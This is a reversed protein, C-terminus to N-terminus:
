IGFVTQMAQEPQCLLTKAVQMKCIDRNNFAEHYELKIQITEILVAGAYQLSRMLFESDISLIEPFQELYATRMAMLSPQLQAIPVKALRLTSALDLGKHIVLSRLWVMLYHAILTGFDFAPDGWGFKEWDIIRLDSTEPHVLVNPFRLDQHVLCCPNWVTKLQAIANGLSEFRQYMRYFEISDQRVRQFVSVGIRELGYLIKPVQRVSEGQSLETLFARYQEQHLTLRHIQALVRGLTAAISVPFRDDQYFDHLDVYDRFYEFVLISRDLDIHVAEVIWQHLQNLESFNEILRQLCWESKFEQDTQGHLDYREQKVLFATRNKFEVFLNFNKGSKVQIDLLADSNLNSIDSENLYSLVNQTSLLFLM